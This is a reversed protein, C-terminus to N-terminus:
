FKLYGGIIAEPCEGSIAYGLGLLFNNIDEV